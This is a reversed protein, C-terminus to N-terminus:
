TESREYFIWSGAAAIGRGLAAMLSDRLAKRQWFASQRFWALLGINNIIIVCACSTLLKVHAFHVLGFVVAMQVILIAVFAVVWRPNKWPLM